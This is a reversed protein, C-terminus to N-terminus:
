QVPSGGRTERRLLHPPRCVKSVRFPAYGHASLVVDLRDLGRVLREAAAIYRGYQVGDGVVDVPGRLRAGGLSGPVADLVTLRFDGCEKLCVARRHLDLFERRDADRGVFGIYQGDDPDTRLSAGGTPGRRHVDVVVELEAVALDDVVAARLVSRLGDSNELGSEIGISVAFTVLGSGTATTTDSIRSRRPSSGACRAANRPVYRRVVSAIPAAISAPKKSSGSQTLRQSTAKASSYRAACSASRVPSLDRTGRGQRRAKAAGASSGASRWTNSPM